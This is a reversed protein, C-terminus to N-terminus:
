TYYMVDSVILEKPLKQKKKQSTENKSATLDDVKRQLQQLMAIVESNQFQGESGVTAVTSHTGTKSSSGTAPSGRHSLPTTRLTHTLTSPTHPASSAPPTIDRNTFRPRWPLGSRRNPTFEQSM